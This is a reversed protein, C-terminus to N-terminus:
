QKTIILGNLLDALDAKFEDFLNQGTYTLFQLTGAKGVWYYGYYTFRIGKITGDIRMNLVKAGNVVLQREAIIKADPAAKRANALAIEKLAPLSVSLREAITLAYADNSSHLLQFEVIPSRKEMVRWKAPDIWLEYFGKESKLVKTAKSPKTTGSTSITKSGTDKYKWTGNPYLIVKKGDTTTAEINAALAVNSTLVIFAILMGLLNKM